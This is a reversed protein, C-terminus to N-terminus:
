YLSTYQKIQPRFAAFLHFTMAFKSCLPENFKCQSIIVKSTEKEYNVATKTDWISWTSWILRNNNLFDLNSLFILQTSKSKILKRYYL